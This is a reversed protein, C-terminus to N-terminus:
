STAKVFALRLDAYSTWCFWDPCIVSCFWSCCHISLCSSLPWGRDAQVVALMTSTPLKIQLSCWPRVSLRVLMFCWHITCKAYFCRFFLDKFSVINIM